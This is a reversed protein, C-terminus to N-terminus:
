GNPVEVVRGASRAAHYARWLTAIHTWIVEPAVPQFATMRSWDSWRCGVDDMEAGTPPSSFVVLSPIPDAAPNRRAFRYHAVGAAIGYRVAAFIGFPRTESM